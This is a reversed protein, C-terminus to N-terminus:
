GPPDTRGDGPDEFAFRMHRRARPEEAVEEADAADEAPAPPPEDPGAEIGSAAAPREAAEEADAEAPAGAEEAAAESELDEDRVMGKGVRYVTQLNEVVTAADTFDEGYDVLEDLNALVPNSLWLRRLARRRLREPVARTMFATFDDGEGLSDPDPLNLEALVEEDPKEALARREEEVSEDDRAKEGTRKEAEVAERRRTWFNESM